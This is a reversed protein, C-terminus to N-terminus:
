AQALLTPPDPSVMTSPAAGDLPLEIPTPKPALLRERVYSVTEDIKDAQVLVLDGPQALWLAHEVANRWHHFGDVAANRRAM